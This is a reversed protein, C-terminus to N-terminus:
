FDYYRFYVWLGAYSCKVDRADSGSPITKYILKDLKELDIEKDKLVSVEMGCGIDVGVMNPVAKDIITMTTGVTCGTGAHVDPMIRIKCDKFVESDCMDQIQGIAGDDVVNTYIKALNYKGKIEM